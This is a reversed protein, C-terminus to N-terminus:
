NSLCYSRIAQDLQQLRASPDNGSLGRAINGFYAGSQAATCVAARGPGERRICEEYASTSNERQVQQNLYNYENMMKQCEWQQATMQAAVTFSHLCALMVAMGWARIVLTRNLSTM